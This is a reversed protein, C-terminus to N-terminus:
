AKIRVKTGHTRANLRKYAKDHKFPRLGAVGVDGWVLPQLPRVSVDFGWESM